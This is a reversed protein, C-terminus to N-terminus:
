KDTQRYARHPYRTGPATSYAQDMKQDSPM